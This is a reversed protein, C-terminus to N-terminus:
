DFNNSYHFQDRIIFNNIYFVIKEQNRSMIYLNCLILSKKVIDNVGFNCYKKM